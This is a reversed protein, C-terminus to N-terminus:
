ENIAHAPDKKSAVIAPILASILATLLALGVLIPAVWWQFGPLDFTTKSLLYFNYKYIANTMLINTPGILLSAVVVSLCGGLLGSLLSETEIMVAIDKKRAGISRLLGIESTRQHVSIYTLIGNLIASVFVSIGAFVYLVSTMLSLAGDFQSSVKELYDNYTFTTFDVEENKVYKSYYDSIQQRGIFTNTYYYLTTIREYQGLSFLLSEYVYDAKYTMSGSQTDTIPNGTLVNKTLGYELQKKVIESNNADNIVKREFEHTYVIGTRYLPNLTDGVDEKQRLIGVIKLEFTSENYLSQYYSSGKYQYRDQGSNYVYYEDNTVYRYTKDLIENFTFKKENYHSTDVDFGLSELYNGDVRNYTDVVLAIENANKPYQGILCDYENEVYTDSDIGKYFLSSTSSIKKVSDDALKTFINFTTYCTESRAYYYSTPMEDMYSLFNNSMYNFHEQTAYGSLDAYVEQKDTYEEYRPTSGQPSSTSYSSIYVPYQSLAKEEAEVFAGQVGQSTSLIIGVGALGLGSALVISLTSLKKNWLNKLGWKLSTLWPFSVKGIEKQKTQEEINIPSNDNVIKGDKLEIIRDSYKIAYDKNHTVMIILHSKSLDKLIELINDGTKSDLAGTPEDALIVVPEGVIARAIAVRQKQGGSLTKPFDRRREYLNVKKLSADVLDSIQKKNYKSSIQLKVEINDKINLHPLLYCNQLVFGIKENRYADWDKSKFNSTSIQDVIMEGSTPQDLGGIINLLTTKGSGSAGLISIFGTDPLKLSINDLAVVDEHAQKRSYIKSINKLSIM